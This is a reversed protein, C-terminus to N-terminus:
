AGDNCGDTSGRLGRSSDGAIAGRRRDVLMALLRETQSAKKMVEYLFHVVEAWFNM